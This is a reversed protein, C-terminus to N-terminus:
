LDAEPLHDFPSASAPDNGRRRALSRRATECALAAALLWATAGLWNLSGALRAPAESLPGLFDHVARDLAAVGATVGEVVGNVTQPTFTPWDAFAARDPIEPVVAQVLEGLLDPFAPHRGGGGNAVTLAAPVDGSGAPLLAATVLAVATGAMATSPPAEPQTPEVSPPSEAVFFPTNAVQPSPIPNVERPALRAPPLRENGPPVAPTPPNVGERLVGQGVPPRGVLVVVVFAFEPPPHAEAGALTTGWYRGVGGHQSPIIASSEPASGQPARAPAALNGGGCDAANAGQYNSVPPAAASFFEARFLMPGADLLWREELPEIFLPRSVSRRRRGKARKPMVTKSRHVAEFWGLLDTPVAVFRFRSLL